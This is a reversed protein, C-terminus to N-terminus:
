AIRYKKVQNGNFCLESVTQVNLVINAKNHGLNRKVYPADDCSGMVLHRM